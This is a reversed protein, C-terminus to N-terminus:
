HGEEGANEWVSQRNGRYNHLDSGCIGASRIEVLVEGPGPNPTSREEIRIDKGGYFLAAKM